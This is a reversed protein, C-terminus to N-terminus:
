FRRKKANGQTKEFHSGGEYAGIIRVGYKRSERAHDAFRGLVWAKTAVETAPGNVIRNEVRQWFEPTPNRWAEVQGAARWNPMGGWYSAVSVGIQDAHASWDEGNQQLYTQMAELAQRTTSPNAAQGEAVYIVPQQRNARELAADLALKWRALAAGYGYRIHGNEHLGQGM